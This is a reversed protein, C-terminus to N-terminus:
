KQQTEKSSLTKLNIVIYQFINGTQTKLKPKARKFYSIKIEHLCTETIESANKNKDKSDLSPSM